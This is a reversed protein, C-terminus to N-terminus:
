THAAAHLQEGRRTKQMVCVVVACLMLQLGSLLMWRVRYFTSYVGFPERYVLLTTSSSLCRQHSDLVACMYEGADQASTNILVLSNNPQNTTGEQTENIHVVKEGTQISKRFWEFWAQSTWQACGLTVNDGESFVELAPPGFKPCVVLLYRENINPGGCGYWGSDNLTLLPFVLSHNRGVELDTNSYNELKWWVPVSGAFACHLVAPEGVPRYILTPLKFLHASHSSVCQQQNMVLCIYLTYFTVDSVHLVSTNKVDMFSDRISDVELTTRNSLVRSQKDKGFRFEYRIWEVAVSGGAGECHIDSTQRGKVVKMSVAACVTLSVTEEYMVEGESRCVHQYLGSDSHTLNHLTFSFAESTESVSLRGMLDECETININEFHSINWLVLIEEGARRSTVCSSKQRPLWFEFSEGEERIAIIEGACIDCILAFLLPFCLQAAAAM